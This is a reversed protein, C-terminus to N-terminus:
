NPWKSEGVRNHFRVRYVVRTIDRDQDDEFGTRSHLVNNNLVGQGAALSINQVLPENGGLIESLCAVAEQTLRDKRWSISRTRATYRMQLRGTDPDPYFVPGVSVPRISGDAERNEPISMAQAHMLARLFAPNQDRLRLYAIEPDLLQNEGGRDAPHVCHLVFGSIQDDPRNYYGDTHWNMPRSSYPIYGRRGAMESVQLAVIGSEGASRHTEAIRLQFGAAFSRLAPEGATTGSEAGTCDYVAFNNMRCRLILSDRETRTPRSLNKVVVPRLNLSNEATKLKAARWHLYLDTQDLDRWQFRQLINFDDM